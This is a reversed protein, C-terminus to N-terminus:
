SVKLNHEQHTKMPQTIANSVRPYPLLPWTHPFPMTPGWQHSDGRMSLPPFFPYPTHAGVQWGMSTNNLFQTKSPNAEKHNTAEFPSILFSFEQSLGSLTKNLYPSPSRGHSFGGKGKISGIKSGQTLKIKPINKHKCLQTM